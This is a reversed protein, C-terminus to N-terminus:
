KKGKAAEAADITDLLDQRAQDFFDVPFDSLNGEDDMTIAQALFGIPSKDLYHAVFDGTRGAKVLAKRAGNLLHESHTEVLVTSKESLAALLEGMKSQLKPHLDNEPHDFIRLGGKKGQLMDEVEKIKVNYPMMDFEMGHFEFLRPPSLPNVSNRDEKMMWLTSRRGVAKFGGLSIEFDEREGRKNEEEYVNDHFDPESLLIERVGSKELEALERIKNLAAVVMSKGSGNIGTLM